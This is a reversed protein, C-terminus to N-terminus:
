QDRPLRLCYMENWIAFKKFLPFKEMCAVGPVLMKCYIAIFSM